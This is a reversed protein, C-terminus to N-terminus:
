GEIQRERIRKLRKMVNNGGRGFYDHLLEYEAYLEDYVASSEPNPTYFKEDVGGMARSAEFIDDYGGRDKGAAVAGFIAAGVACTQSSRAIRIERHLVDAYIQMMMPNKKAIGGCAYLSDIHVGHKEFTDVIMRTGYATAEILARYIEEPLTTLTMGLIMGTLDMDVLVSRNGNWWDLAILGSQGPKLKEAKETLLGHINMGREEAEKMYSVPVCNETMWKFHDGVCCQGAEYAFLGPVVGDEVVGCIGPVTSETESLMIHCTSTGMIMLMKGPDVLGAPPLSTHADPTGVAVATGPNLGILKAGEETLEGAKTAIPTPVRGLKEDIVNELRPDLARFFDNSPYGDQKHWFAKYGVISASRTLKGTLMLVLWDVAEIFYDAEDYIDPAEDVIQWLKPFFWESSVKNGYRALFTEGREQIIKEIQAAKDHAAHHKWLMVWAHPRSAYKETLCLPTGDKYIPMTTSATVDIGLGIVDDASVGSLKLAEPVVYKLCDMYDQPHQLAWDPKLPTGDPLARDMVAHPYDMTASAIERGTGVEVVLARASLTGYDIGITYKSM